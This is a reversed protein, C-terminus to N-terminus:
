RETGNTTVTTTANSKEEYMSKSGDFHTAFKMCSVGILQSKRTNMRIRPTPYMAIAQVDSCYRSGRSAFYMPMAFVEM